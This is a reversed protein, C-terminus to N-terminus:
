EEEHVKEVHRDVGDLTAGGIRWLRSANTRPDVVAVLEPEELPADLTVEAQSPTTTQAGVHPFLKSYTLVQEETLGSLHLTFSQTNRNWLVDGDSGFLATLREAIAKPSAATKSAETQAKAQKAAEIEAAHDVDRHKKMAGKSPFPQQCFDCNTPKPTSDKKRTVAKQLTDRPVCFEKAVAAVTREGSSVNEPVDPAAAPTNGKRLNALRIRETIQQRLLVIDAVVHVRQEVTLNRRGVQNELIWLKVAERDPLTARDRICM